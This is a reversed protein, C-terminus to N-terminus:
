PTPEAVLQPQRARKALRWAIVGSIIAAPLFFAQPMAPILGIAGLIISVPIWIAADSFQSGIQGTLDDASNVRTVIAAAAISLLLAPVQAVLADGVALTIYHEAAQSATLGHSIMGLCFGVIINVALILVAAIADGKVFKSAGD